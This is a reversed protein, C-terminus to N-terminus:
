APQFHHASSFIWENACAVLGVQVPNGHIYAIASALRRDDRIYRDFYDRQWVAGHRALIRNIEKASFSKWSHVIAALSLTRANFGALHQREEYHSGGLLAPTEGAPSAEEFTEILVHVHKPMICWALLRYREGDFHLLAAEVIRALQPDRLWCCGHGADLYNDIRKQRGADNETDHKIRDLVSKPLADALRFTIAQILGPADCHPLYNRSYWGKLTRSDNNPM